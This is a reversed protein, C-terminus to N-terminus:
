HKILLPDVYNRLIIIYLSSVRKVGYIYMFTYLTGVIFIKTLLKPPHATTHNLCAEDVKSQFMANRANYGSANNWENCSITILHDVHKRMIRNRLVTQSNIKTCDRDIFHTPGDAEIYLKGLIPHIIMIDFSYVNFLNIELQVSYGM